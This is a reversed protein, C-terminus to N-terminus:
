RCYLQSHHFMIGPMHTPEAIQDPRTPTSGRHCDLPKFTMHVNRMLYRRVVLATQLNIQDTYLYTLDIVTLSRAFLPSRDQIRRRSVDRLQQLIPLVASCLDNLRILWTAGMYTDGDLLHNRLVVHTFMDRVVDRVTWGNKCPEVMTDLM